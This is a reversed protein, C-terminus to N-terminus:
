MFRYMCLKALSNKVSIIMDMPSSVCSSACLIQTPYRFDSAGQVFM